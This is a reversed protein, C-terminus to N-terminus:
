LKAFIRGNHKTILYASSAAVAAVAVVDGFGFSSVGGNNVKIYPMIHARIQEVIAQTRHANPDDNPIKAALQNTFYLFQENVAHLGRAYIDLIIRANQGRRIKVVGKFVDQNNYCLALTAIAMVQPIACFNFVKPDQLRSMYDLCAPVHNLANTILDNLCYVAEKGYLPSKFNEIVPVYKSWVDRPWFVRPPQQNIDELYDRIINTKQLFLGMSNSAEDASVFWQDELGSAAFLNSLGIGVLGAVYHCYLNYDHMTLVPRQCFEAMGNGMRCTIDKIIDRYKQKFGQFVDIVRDFNEALIREDKEGCGTISWGPQYLKEHFQTLLPVKQDVPVSMDDEITDLARLILYFVCIVDRLESGLEQIVFAFSRSTKNLMEYCWRTNASLEPAFQPSPTSSRAYRLKLLAVLENPHAISSLVYQM